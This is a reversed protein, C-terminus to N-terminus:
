HGLSEFTATSRNNGPLAPPPLVLVNQGSTFRKFDTVFAAAHADTFNAVAFIYGTFGSAFNCGTPAAALLQSLLVSFTVGSAIAGTSSL